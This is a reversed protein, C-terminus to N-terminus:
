IEALEKFARLKEIIKVIFSKPAYKLLSILEEVEASDDKFDSKAINIAITGTNNGNGIVVNQNNSSKKEEIYMSGKGTLLWDISINESQSIKEIHEYPLSNRKKWTSLTNAKIGYRDCFEVDKNIKISLYLRNLVEEVRNL